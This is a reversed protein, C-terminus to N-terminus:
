RSPSRAIATAMLCCNAMGRWTNSRLLKFLFLEVVVGTGVTGEVALGSLEIFFGVGAVLGEVSRAEDSAQSMERNSIPKALKM